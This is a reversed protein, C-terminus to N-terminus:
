LPDSEPRGQAISCILCQGVKLSFDRGICFYVNHKRAYVLNSYMRYKYSPYILERSVTIMFLGHSILFRIAM